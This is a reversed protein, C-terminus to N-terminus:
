FLLQIDSHKSQSILDYCCSFYKTKIKLENIDYYIKFKIVIIVDIKNEKIKTYIYFKGGQM